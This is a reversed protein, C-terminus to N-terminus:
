HARKMGEILEGVAMTEIMEVGRSALKLALDPRRVEYVCLRSKERIKGFRPLILVDSFLYEFHQSVVAEKSRQGWRTLVLGLPLKCHKRAETLFPLSFSILACHKASKGLGKLLAALFPGAGVARVTEPKAEVFARVRPHRALFRRLDQLTALPQPQLGPLKTRLGKFTALSIDHVSGKIGCLRGLAVDHFLVPVGDSTMQVDVEVWRAGAKVAAELSAITNEAAKLAYGRHAVVEPVIRM